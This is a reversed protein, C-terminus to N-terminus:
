EYPLSLWVKIGGVKAPNTNTLNIALQPNSSPAPRAVYVSGAPLTATPGSSDAGVNSTITVLNAGGAAASSSTITLPQSTMVARGAPKTPIASVQTTTGYPLSITRPVTNPAPVM